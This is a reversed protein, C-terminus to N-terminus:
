HRENYYFENYHICKSLGWFGAVGEYQVFFSLNYCM